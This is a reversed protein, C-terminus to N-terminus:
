KFTYGRNHTPAERTSKPSTIKGMRESRVTSQVWGPVLQSNTDKTAMIKLYECLAVIFPLRVTGPVSM